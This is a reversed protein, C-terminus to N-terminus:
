IAYGPRPNEASHPRTAARFLAMEFDGIRTERTARLAHVRPTKKQFMQILRFAAIREALCRCSNKRCGLLIVVTRGFGLIVVRSTKVAQFFIRLPLAGM